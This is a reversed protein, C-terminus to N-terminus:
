IQKTHKLFNALKEINKKNIFLQKIGIRAFWLDRCLRRAVAVAGDKVDM